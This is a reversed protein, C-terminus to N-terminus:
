LHVTFQTSIERESAIELPPIGQLFHRGGAVTTSSYAMFHPIRFGEQFFLMAALVEVFRNM